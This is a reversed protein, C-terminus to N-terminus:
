ANNESFVDDAERMEDPSVELSTLSCKDFKLSFARLAEDGHARVENIIDSVTDHLAATDAVARKMLEPWTSRDPRSIFKVTSEM